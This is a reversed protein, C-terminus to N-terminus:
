FKMLKHSFVQLYNFYMLLCEGLSFFILQISIYGPAGVGDRGMESNNGGKNEEADPENICQDRLDIRRM